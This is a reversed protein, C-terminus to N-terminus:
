PVGDYYINDVQIGRSTITYRGDDYEQTHLGVTNGIVDIVSNLNQDEIRQRTIVTVSQPTERPALPLGTGTTMAPTTYSDLGETRTPNTVRDGEIGIPDLTVAGDKGASEAGSSEGQAAGATAPGSASWIAVLTAAITRKMGVRRVRRLSAQRDRM